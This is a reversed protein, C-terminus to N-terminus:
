KTIIRKLKKAANIIRLKAKVIRLEKLFRGNMIRYLELDVKNRKEIERILESNISPKVKASNLKGYFSKKWKMKYNLILMSEDFYEQIGVFKFHKEINELAKELMLNEDDVNSLKRAQGNVVDFDEVQTVCELLTKNRVTDFLRNDSQRKVFNYFSITREVPHRLMTVYKFPNTFQEHLGFNFHGTLLRFKDKEHQPLEKFDGLNWIKNENYGVQFIENESYKKKLVSNLTMGGNKPLHLFILRKNEM